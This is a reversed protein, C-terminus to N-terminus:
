TLKRNHVKSTHCTSNHVGAHLGQALEDITNEEMYTGITLSLGLIHNTKLCFKTQKNLFSTLDLVEPKLSLPTIPPLLACDDSWLNQGLDHMKMYDDLDVKYSSSIYSVEKSTFTRRIHQRIHSGLCQIM